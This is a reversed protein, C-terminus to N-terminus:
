SIGRDLADLVLRADLEGVTTGNWAIIAAAFASSAKGVTAPLDLVDKAAATHLGHVEDAAFATRHGGGGIVVLRPFAPTREGAPRSRRPGIGLLTALSVQVLLEGRVNVIGLVLANDRHPLSHVPRPETIEQVVEAPLALWEDALRFVLVRRERAAEAVPVDEDMRRAFHRTWEERYGPPLPRDLLRGAAGAAPAGTGGEAGATANGDIAM